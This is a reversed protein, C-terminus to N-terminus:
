VQTSRPPASPSRISSFPQTEGCISVAVPGAGAAGVGAAAVIV